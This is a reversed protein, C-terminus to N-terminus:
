FKMELMEKPLEIAVLHWHILNHRNWIAKIPQVYQELKAELIFSNPSIYYLGFEPNDSSKYNIKNTNNKEPNIKNSRLDSKATIDIGNNQKFNNIQGQNLLVSIGKPTLTKNLTTEVIAKSFPSILMQGLKGFSQNSINNEINRNLILTLQGKLSNRLESYNIFKSAQLSDQNELATRFRLISIYPNAFIYGACSVGLLCICSFLSKRLKSKLFHNM